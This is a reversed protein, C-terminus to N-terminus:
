TEYSTTKVSSFSDACEFSGAQTSDGGIYRAILPYMCLPRQYVVVEGSPAVSPLSTAALTQPVVGEEVWAVLTELAQEPYPGVGGACHGVGPAYFLRYFDQVDTLNGNGTTEVVRDYYDSSGNPPVYQDALGHWSLLKGGKAKFTSLEPDYTSIISQYQQYANHYVTQFYSYNM